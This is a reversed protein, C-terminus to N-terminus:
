TRFFHFLELSSLNIVCINVHEKNVLLCSHLYLNRLSLTLNKYLFTYSKVDSATMKLAITLLIFFFDVSLMYMYKGWSKDFYILFFMKTKM